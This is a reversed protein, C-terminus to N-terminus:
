YFSDYSPPRVYGERFENRVLWFSLAVNVLLTVIFTMAVAWDPPSITLYNFERFDKKVWSAQINAGLWDVVAPLNLAKMTDVFFRAEVKLQEVPTWSIPHAWQVANENNLGIALIFENKNGGKWYWEQYQGADLPQNRFLLIWVRVKKPAGLTANLYDLKREAEKKGPMDSGLIGPFKFPNVVEPYEFLGYRAKLSDDVEPFNFVSRAAQVRNEYLKMTTVPEFTAVNGDWEAQYLDGDNSDYDRHLDVFTPRANFQRVLREYEAKSIDIDFGNSEIAHWEEPHYDVYSCDYTETCWITNGDEDTGCSVLRTCTMHIYEDWDEFYQVKTVYGGWYETDTTQVTGITLKFLAILVLSVGLPIFFEWWLMKRKFFVLLFVAVLVPIVAAFWIIM